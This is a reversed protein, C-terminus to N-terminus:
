YDPGRLGGREREEEGGRKGRWVVDGIPQAFHARVGNVTKLGGSDAPGGGRGVMLGRSGALPVIRDSILVAESAHAYRLM